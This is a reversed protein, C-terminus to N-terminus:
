SGAVLNIRANVAAQIAADTVAGSVAVDQVTPDTVLLFYLRLGSEKLSAESALAGESWVLRAAHNPTGVDEALVTSAAKGTAAIIRSRLGNFESSYILNYSELLTAM